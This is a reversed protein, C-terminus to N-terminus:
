KFNKNEMDLVKSCRRAHREEDKQFEAGLFAKVLSPVIEAKVVRAGLCLVNMNDHLVGQEASYEDHAISARVGKFKNATICVGIGSGCILIGKQAEGSTLAIAVKAAFDPYDVSDSSFTGFDLVEAGFDEITKKVLDKIAFGAHDCGLAVKM